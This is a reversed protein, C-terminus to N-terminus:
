ETTDCVAFVLLHDVDSIGLPMVLAEHHLFMVAESHRGTTGRVVFAEGSKACQRYVRGIVAATGPAEAAIAGLRRSNLSISFAQAFSDGVIRYEFDAGGDIVRVLAMYRLASRFRGPNLEERAPFRRSGRLRNWYEVPGHLIPSEVRDLTDFELLTEDPLPFPTTALQGM